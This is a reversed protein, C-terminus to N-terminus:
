ILANVMNGALGLLIKGIIFETNSGLNPGSYIMKDGFVKYDTVKPWNINLILIFKTNTAGIAQSSTQM